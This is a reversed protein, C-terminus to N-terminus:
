LREEEFLVGFLGEPRILLVLIMICLAVAGGLYSGGPILFVVLTEVFGLIFAGLVAGGLSGMGGLVVSALVIVIPHSWMTPSIMYIPGMLFGAIAALGVSVGMVILYIRPVNIGMLNAVEADQSVARISNGVKTGSLWQWLGVLVVGVTIIAIVHQWTTRTGLIEVYGQVLPTMGRYTGGFQIMLIEQFLMALAITMILVTTMHEKVRDILIKFCLIGIAVTIVVAALIAGLLPWNLYNVASYVLYAAIMYFATHAINIVGAVSFILAFGVALVAYLGGSIVGNVLIDGIM